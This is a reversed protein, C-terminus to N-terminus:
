GRFSRRAAAFLVCAGAAMWAYATPEPVATVGTFTFNGMDKGQDGPTAFLFNAVEWSLGLDGSITLTNGVTSTTVNQLDFAVGAPAINGKLAWGTGGVLQRSVDYSLTFDGFLLGGGGLLPNVTWRTVGGLGIAGTHATLNGPTFSFDTPQATRGTLNSVSPGNLDFSIGTYAPNAVVEDALIQAGTRANAAAQNFAEDLTLAEFGPVNAGGAVSAWAASDFDFMGSGSVLTDARLSTTVLLALAAAQALKLTNM